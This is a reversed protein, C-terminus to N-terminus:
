LYGFVVLSLLLATLAIIIFNHLTYVFDLRYKIKFKFHLQSGNNDLNM